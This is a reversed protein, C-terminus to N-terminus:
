KVLARIVNNFIDAVYVTGGADVAIGGASASFSASNAPGGDGSYGTVGNGAITTIIGDGTVKRVHAAGAPVGSLLGGSIYLNGTADVAMSFPGQLAARTAPGGDGSSGTIGTTGNGAVTSITGDPSLKRVTNETAFYVNGVADVAVGTPFFFDGPGPQFFNHGAATTIIGAVSVKRILFFSTDAIYLNGSADVAVGLPGALAARTAPGGGGLPPNFDGRGAVTTIVGNRSVKRIRNNGTDAIYLNGSADVAM